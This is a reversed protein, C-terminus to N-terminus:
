SPEHGLVSMSAILADRDAQVPMDVRVVVRHREHVGRAVEDFLSSVEELDLLGQAALPHHQRTWSPRGGHGRAHHGSRRRRGHRGRGRGRHRGAVHHERSGTAVMSDVGSRNVDEGSCREDELSM